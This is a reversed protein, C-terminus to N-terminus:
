ILQRYNVRSGALATIASAAVESAFVAQVNGSASPTIFGQIVAINGSTLSSASSTAPSNYASLFNLTQTTATLTYYSTYSLVSTSPGNISWRSGTTTIASTYNILFEFEYASGATVPFLLGTVDQLTNAVANNNIVDSTIVVSSYGTSAPASATSQITKIAGSTANLVYFGQGEQYQLIDGASLTGKFLIYQTGSADLYVTVVESTTDSNYVSLFDVVHQRSASPAPVANVATTNNTVTVNKKPTFATTGIDRYSALIQLQNTTVASGLVIKITDTTETLILM